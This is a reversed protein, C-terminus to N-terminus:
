GRATSGSARGGDQGRVPVSELMSWAVRALPVAAAAAAVGIPINNIDPTLGPVFARGLEVLASLAGGLMGAWVMPTRGTGRLAWVLAGVPAYMAVHVAISKIAQAKSVIYHTWLPLFLRPETAAIAEELSRWRTTLLSNALALLVLYPLLALWALRPLHRRWARVPQGALWHMALVGLAIGLGRLPVSVLAPATSLMLASAATLCAALAVGRLMLRARSARPALAHLLGGVPVFLAVNGLAILLRLHRPRGAGPLAFLSRPLTEWRAAVDGASLVLDFPALVFGAVALTYAGLLGILGRHGGADIARVWGDLREHGLAAALIGILAGALQAAIYNLTVTRPFYLQLYKIGLVVCAAIVFAAVGGLARRARGGRAAVAAGLLYGFPVLMLLNGM